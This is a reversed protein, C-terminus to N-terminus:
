PDIAKQWFRNDDVKYETLDLMKNKFKRILFTGKYYEILNVPVSDIIAANKYAYVIGSKLVFSDLKIQGSTGSGNVTIYQSVLIIKDDIKSYAPDYNVNEHTLIYYVIFISDGKIDLIKCPILEMDKNFVIESGKKIQLKKVSSGNDYYFLLAKYPGKQFVQSIILHENSLNCGYTLIIATLLFLKIITFKTIM